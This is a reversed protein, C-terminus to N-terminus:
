SIRREAAIAERLGTGRRLPRDPDLVRAAATAFDRPGHPQGATTPIEGTEVLAKFRRLDQQMVFSPDKGLLKAFAKGISGAPPLYHVRSEVVTGRNGTAPRFEVYGELELESGPLSRWYIMEHPRESIIEADWTFRSGLPGIAVWRSRREGLVSVSELHRMFRPLNEFDRWFRYAEEASVNVVVVGRAHAEQPVSSAKLGYYLLAGGAAVVPIGAPSRRTLGVV